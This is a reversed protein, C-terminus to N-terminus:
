KRAGGTINARNNRWRKNRLQPSPSQLPQPEFQFDNWDFFTDDDVDVEDDDDYILDFGQTQEKAEEEHNDIAEMSAFLQEEEILTPIPALVVYSRDAALRSSELLRTIINGEKERFPNVRLEAAGM